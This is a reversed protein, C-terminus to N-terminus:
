GGIEMPVPEVPSTVDKTGPGTPIPPMVDGSDPVPLVEVDPTVVGPDKGCPCNATREDTWKAQTDGWGTASGTLTVKNCYKKDTAQTRQQKCVIEHDFTTVSGKATKQLKLFKYTAKNCPPNSRSSSISVEEKDSDSWSGNFEVQASATAKLKQFLVGAAAEVSGGLTFKGGVTVTHTVERRTNITITTSQCGENEEPHNVLVVWTQPGAAVVPTTPGENLQTRRWYGSLFSGDHDTTPHLQCIHGDGQQAVALGAQGLVAAVLFVLISFRM